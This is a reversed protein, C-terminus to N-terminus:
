GLVSREGQWHSVTVAPTASFQAAAAINKSNLTPHPSIALPLPVLSLSFQDSMTARKSVSGLNTAIPKNGGVVKMTKHDGPGHSGEGAREKASAM